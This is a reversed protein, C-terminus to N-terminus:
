NCKIVQRGNRLVNRDVRVVRMRVCWDVRFMRYVHRDVYACADLTKNRDKNKKRERTKEFKKDYLTTFGFTVKEKKGKKREDNM